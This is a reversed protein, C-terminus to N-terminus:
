CAGVHRADAAAARDLLSLISRGRTLSVRFPPARVISRVVVVEGLM